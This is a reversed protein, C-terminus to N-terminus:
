FSAKFIFDLLFNSLCSFNSCDRSTISQLKNKSYDNFRSSVPIHLILQVCATVTLILQRRLSGFFPMTEKLVEVTYATDANTSTNHM